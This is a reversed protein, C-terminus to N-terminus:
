TEEHAPENNADLRLRLFDAVSPMSALYVKPYPLGVQQRSAGGISFGIDEEEAEDAWRM